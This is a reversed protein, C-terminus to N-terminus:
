GMGASAIGKKKNVVDGFLETGKSVADKYGKVYNKWNCWTQEDTGSTLDRNYGIGIKISNETVAATLPVFSLDLKMAKGGILPVNSPVTFGLDKELEINLTSNSPTKVSVSNSQSSSGSNFNVPTLIGTFSNYHIM